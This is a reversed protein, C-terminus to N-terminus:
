KLTLHWKVLESKSLVSLNLSTDVREIEINYVEVGTTDEFEQLASYVKVLFWEKPTKKNDEM